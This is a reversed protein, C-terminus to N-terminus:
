TQTLRGSQRMLEVKLEFLVVVVQQNHTHFSQNPQTLNLETQQEGINRAESSSNLDCHFKSEVIRFSFKEGEIASREAVIERELKGFWVM